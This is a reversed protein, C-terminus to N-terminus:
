TASPQPRRPSSQQAFRWAEYRLEDLETSKHMFADAGSAAVDQRDEESSSEAIVIIRTDKPDHTRRVAKCFQLGDSLSPTMNVVVVHPQFDNVHRIAEGHSKAERVSFLRDTAFFSAAKSRYVHDNDVLLVRISRETILHPPVQPPSREPPSRDQTSVPVREETAEAAPQHQLPSPAFRLIASKLEEPALPKLLLMSGGCRKVKAATDKSPFATIFIVPVNKQGPLQKIDRCLIFGNMGRMVVDLLIVDFKMSSALRLAATETGATQVRLQTDDRFFERVLELFHKDDDVILVSAPSKVHPLDSPEKSRDPEEASLADGLVRQVEEMHRSVFDDCTRYEPCLHCCGYKFHAAPLHSFEELLRGCRACELDCNHARKCLHYHPDPMPHHVKPHIRLDVARKCDMYQSCHSCCM